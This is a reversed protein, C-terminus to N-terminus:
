KHKDPLHKHGIVYAIQAEYNALWKEENKAM